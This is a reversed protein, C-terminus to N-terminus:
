FPYDGDSSPPLSEVKKSEHQPTFVNATTQFPSAKRVFYEGVKDRLLKDLQQQEFRSDILFYKEYRDKGTSIDVGLKMSGESFFFGNTLNGERDKAQTCKFRLIIKGYARVTAVGLYKEEPAADEYELFEFNNM